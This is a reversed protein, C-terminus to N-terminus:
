LEINIFNNNYILSATEGANYMKSLERLSDEFNGGLDFVNIIDDNNKVKIQKIEDRGLHNRNVYSIVKDKIKFYNLTDYGEKQMEDNKIISECINVVDTTIDGYTLLMMGFGSNKEDPTLSEIFNERFSTYYRCEMESWSKDQLEIADLFKNAVSLEIKNVMGM